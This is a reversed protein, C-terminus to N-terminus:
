YPEPVDKRLSVVGEIYCDEGNIKCTGSRVVIKVESNENEYQLFPGKQKRGERYYCLVLTKGDESVFRCRGDAKLENIAYEGALHGKISRTMKAEMQNCLHTETNM